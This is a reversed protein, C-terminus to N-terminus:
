LRLYSRGLRTFEDSEPIKREIKGSTATLAIDRRPTMRGGDASIPNLGTVAGVRKSPAHPLGARDGGRQLGKFAM